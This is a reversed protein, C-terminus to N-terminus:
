RRNIRFFLQGDLLEVNTVEYVGAEIDHAPIHDPFRRQAERALMYDVEGKDMQIALGTITTRPANSM